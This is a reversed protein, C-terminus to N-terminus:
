RKKRYYCVRDAMCLMAALAKVPATREAEARRTLGTPGLGCSRPRDIRMNLSTATALGAEGRNEGVGEAEGQLAPLLDGAGAHLEVAGVTSLPSIVSQDLRVLMSCMLVVCALTGM